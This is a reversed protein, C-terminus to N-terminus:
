WEGITKSNISEEKEFNWRPVILGERVLRGTLDDVGEKVPVRTKSGLDKFPPVARDRIRRIREEEIRKREEEEAIRMMEEEEADRKM